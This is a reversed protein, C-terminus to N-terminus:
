QISCVYVYRNYLYIFINYLLVFIYIYIGVIISDKGGNDLYSVISPFIKHGEKDQVIIVQNDKSYGVVSFTTGM